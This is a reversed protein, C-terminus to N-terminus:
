ARHGGRGGGRRGRVGVRPGAETADYGDHAAAREGITREIERMFEDVTNGMLVVPHGAAFPEDLVEGPGAEHSHRTAPVDM